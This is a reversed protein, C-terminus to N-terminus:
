SEGLKEFTLILKRMLALMEKEYPTLQEYEVPTM